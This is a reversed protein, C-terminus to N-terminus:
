KLPPIMRDIKHTHSSLNSSTIKHLDHDITKLLALAVAFMCLFNMHALHRLYKVLYIRQPSGELVDVVHRKHTGVGASTGVQNRDLCVVLLRPAADPGARGHCAHQTMGNYM